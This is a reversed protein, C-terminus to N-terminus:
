LIYRMKNQRELTGPFKLCAGSILIASSVEGSTFSVVGVLVSMDTSVLRKPISSSRSVTHEPEWFGDRKGKGGKVHSTFLNEDEKENAEVM